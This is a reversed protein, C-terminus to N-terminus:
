NSRTTTGYDDSTDKKPEEIWYTIIYETRYTEQPNLCVSILVGGEPMKFELPKDTFLNVFGM